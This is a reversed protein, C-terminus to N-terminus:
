PGARPAGLGWELRWVMVTRPSSTSSRVWTPMISMSSSDISAYGAMLLRQSSTKVLNGYEILSPRNM